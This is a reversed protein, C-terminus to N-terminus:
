RVTEEVRRVIKPTSLGFQDLLWEHGGVKSVYVDPLAIRAFRKPFVGADCLVPASFTLGEHPQTEGLWTEHFLREVDTAM